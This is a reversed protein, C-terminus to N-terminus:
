LNEELFDLMDNYTNGNTYEGLDDATANAAITGNLKLEKVIEKTTYGFEECYERM